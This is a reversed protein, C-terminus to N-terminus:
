MYQGDKGKIFDQSIERFNLGNIREIESVIKGNLFRTGTYAGCLAGTLAGVTDTDGGMNVSAKVADMMRGDSKHFLAIIVPIIEDTEMSFGMCEYLAGACKNLDTEKEILSMASKIKEAISVERIIFGKSEGAKAGYLAADIIDPLRSDEKLAEAVAAALCAAGSIAINTGHTPLSLIEADYIAKEVDGADYIGVPIVRMAAGITTGYRGAEIPDAGSFLSKLAKSSSPGLYSKNFVDKEVAWNTLANVAVDLGIRKNRVIEKIIELTVETDDTIMGRVLDSHINEKCPQVLDEVYGYRSKIDEPAMFETPMGMCDGIALGCLCGYVRDSFVNKDKM